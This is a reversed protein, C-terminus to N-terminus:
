FFADRVLRWSWLLGGMVVLCGILLIPIFWGLSFMPNAWRMWIADWGVMVILAAMCLYPGFAIHREGTLMRHAAAILLATFPALFFILFSAQWGLFAGIMAMLTVDGFGMAEVRLAHGSVIRVLWILGGGFCMGVIASLLSEWRTSGVMWVTIALASVCMGIGVPIPWTRRRVISTLMYQVAKMPGRRLTWTKHLIAFCWAWVGLLGVALGAWRDLTTPWSCPGGSANRWSSETTSSTLVLRHVSAPGLGTEYVTPLAAMPLAVALLLGAVTGTVTIADPITQEDFDIFTAVIMLSVLVLHSFCQAYLATLPPAAVDPLAPWLWRQDVEGWYLVAFGIGTALEILLPRIWYGRGHWAAERRLGWWGIVPLRDGRCRPPAEAPPPSWPGWDRSFWALRYIGRNLQGGVLLGMFFLLTLRIEIPLNLFANV